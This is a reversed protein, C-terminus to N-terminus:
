KINLVETIKKLFWLVKRFISYKSIPFPMKIKVIQQAHRARDIDIGEDDKLNDLIFTKNDIDPSFVEITDNIGFNNRQEVTAIMTEQDYDLVLGIFAQNPKEGTFEYLQKSPGLDNDLYGNELLRNEAKAIEDRYKQFDNLAPNKILDDILMRYTKTVTAIYHLSKMRGEIKLSKVGADMLEKIENVASLDKSSISFIEDSVKEKDQYLKYEWRCSHACGGRNADRAALNNSLACRGSYSMCMGGHIFVELDIPNNTIKKIDDLSLERGLVIRKVGLEQWYKLTPTNLASQQTSLHVELNTYKLATDIIYPSACIIADVNAKELKLLYEKLGELDTRHPIINTTVYVKKGLNHAFETAEKIREISFNSARSRLSFDEGGIFVADAGYILAYKLKEFNGAPALLEIM